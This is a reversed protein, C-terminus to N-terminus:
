MGGMNPKHSPTLMTIPWILVGVSGKEHLLM